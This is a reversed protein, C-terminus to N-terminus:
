APHSRTWENHGPQYQPLAEPHQHQYHVNAYPNFQGMHQEHPNYVSPGHQLSPHRSTDYMPAPHGVAHYAPLSGDLVMGPNPYGLMSQRTDTPSPYTSTKYYPGAMGTQANMDLARSAYQAPGSSTYSGPDVLKHDPMMQPVHQQIVPSDSHDSAHMTETQDDVGEEDHGPSQKVDVLSFDEADATKGVSTSLKGSKM